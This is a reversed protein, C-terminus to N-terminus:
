VGALALGHSLRGARTEDQLAAAAHRHAVADREGGVDIPRGRRAPKGREEFARRVVLAPRNEFGGAAEEGLVAVGEHRLVHAAAVRGFPLPVEQLFLLAASPKSVSAQIAACGHHSPRTPM